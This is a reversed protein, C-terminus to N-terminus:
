FVKEIPCPLRTPTYLNQEEFAKSMTDFTREILFKIRKMAKKDCPKMTNSMIVKGSESMYNILM